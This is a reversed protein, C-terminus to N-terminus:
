QLKYLIFCKGKLFNVKESRDCDPDNSGLSENPLLFRQATHLIALHLCKVNFFSFQCNCNVM